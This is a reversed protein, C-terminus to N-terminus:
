EYRTYVRCLRHWASFGGSSGINMLDNAVPPINLCVPQGFRRSLGRVRLSLLAPSHPDFSFFLFAGPSPFSARSQEVSQIAPRPRVPVCSHRCHPRPPSPPATPQCALGIAATRSPCKCSSSLLPSTIHCCWRRTGTTCRTDGTRNKWPLTSYAHERTM